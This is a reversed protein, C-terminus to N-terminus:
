QRRLCDIAFNGMGDEFVDIGSSFILLTNEQQEFEM